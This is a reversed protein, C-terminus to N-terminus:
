TNDQLQFTYKEKEKWCARSIYQLDPTIARREQHLEVGAFNYKKASDRVLPSFFSVRSANFRTLDDRPVSSFFDIQSLLYLDLFFVTQLDTPRPDKKPPYFHFTESPWGVM